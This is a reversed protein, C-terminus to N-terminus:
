ENANRSTGASGVFIVTMGSYTNANPLTFILNQGSGDFALVPHARPGITQTAITPKFTNNSQTADHGLGSQDAWTNVGFADTTVGLDSRFWAVLGSSPPLVTAQTSVMGGILVLVALLAFGFSRRINKLTSM